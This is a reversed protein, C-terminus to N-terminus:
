LITKLGVKSLIRTIEKVNIALVISLKEGHLISFAEHYVQHNVCLIITHFAYTHTPRLKALM